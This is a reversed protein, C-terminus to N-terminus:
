SYQLPLHFNATFQLLPSVCTMTRYWGNIPQLVPCTTVEWCAFLMLIVDYWRRHSTIVDCRRQYSTMKVNHVWQTVKFSLCYPHYSVVFRLLQNQDTMDYEATLWFSVNRDWYRLNNCLKHINALSHHLLAFSNCVVTILQGWIYLSIFYCYLWSTEIRVRCALLARM